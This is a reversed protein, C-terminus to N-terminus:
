KLRYSYGLTIMLSMGTSASFADKKRSGFVNGLGYYFRGELIVSHDRKAIFEAGAGISIGYDIKNKIPLSVQENNRNVIPFGDVSSLNNYDFNASISEGILYGVEPGANFFGKLKSNGFFIHTLIPIQVYTLTRSYNFPFEEFDEKWGRQEFNLEMLLGFNKEEAYHFTIGAAYGLLITQPVSPSFMTKSLTMGTKGGISVRSEYLTQANIKTYTICLIIVIIFLRLTKM